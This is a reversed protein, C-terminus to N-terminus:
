ILTLKKFNQYYYYYGFALVIETLIAMVVAGYIGVTYIFIINGIVSVLVALFQIKMVKKQLNVSYLAISIIQKVFGFFVAVSLFQLIVVSASYQSGYIIKIILPALLAILLSSVSALFIFIKFLKKFNAVLRQKNESFLQSFYPYISSTLYQPLLFFLFIFNYAASFIGVAYDGKMMSLFVVGSKCYVATLFVGFAFPWVEKLTNKYSGLNLSIALSPLYNRLFILSFLVGIISSAIYAYSINLISEYNSVFVFVILILLSLSQLVQCIAEYQMKQNARFISQFFISFTNIIVYIGLFYVLAVIERGKGLFHIALVILGLNVLGLILKIILANHIYETIKSKDRSIKQVALFGFGFDSLVAFIVAFNLAFNWQGYVLPGFYRTLWVVILFNIGKQLMGTFSLWFANKVITQKTTRNDFLFSKISLPIPIKPTM